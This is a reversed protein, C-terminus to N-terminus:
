GLVTGYRSGFRWRLEDRAEGELFGVIYSLSDLLTEDDAAVGDGLALALNESFRVVFLMSAPHEREEASALVTDIAAEAEPSAGFIV